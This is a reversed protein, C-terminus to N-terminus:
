SEQAFWTFEQDIVTDAPATTSITLGWKQPAFSKPLNMQGKIRQFYSFGLRIQNDEVDDSLESLSFRQPKGQQQGIIDIQIHGSVKPQNVKFQKITIEYEILKRDAHLRVAPQDIIIGSETSQSGMIDEYFRQHEEMLTLESKLQFLQDTLEKITTTDVASKVGLQKIEQELKSFRQTGENFHTQLANIYSIGFDHQLTSWYYGGYFGSFATAAGFAVLLLFAVFPRLPHHEVVKYRCLKTPQIQSM